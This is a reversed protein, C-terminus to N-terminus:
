SASRVSVLSSLVRSGNPPLTSMACYTATFTKFYRYNLRSLAGDTSRASRARIAKKVNSWSEHILLLHHVYMCYKCLATARTWWITTSDTRTHQVSTIVNDRTSLTVGERQTPGDIICCWYWSVLVTGALDYRLLNRGSASGRELM